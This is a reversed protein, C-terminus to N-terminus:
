VPIGYRARNIAEIVARAGASSSCAVDLPRRCGLVPHRTTLYAEIGERDGHYARSLLDVIRSLEYLRESMERSLPKGGNRARRLTAEPIVPGVVNKRGLVDVLAAVADPQLGRGVCDALELDSVARADEIGLWTAVRAAETVPLEEPDAYSELVAVEKPNTTM